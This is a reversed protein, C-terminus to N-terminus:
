KLKRVVLTQWEMFMAMSQNSAKSKIVVMSWEKILLKWDFVMLFSRKSHM